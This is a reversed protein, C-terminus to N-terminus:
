EIDIPEFEIGGCDVAEGSMIGHVYTEGVFSRSLHRGAQGDGGEAVPTAPPLERLIFPTRGGAFIWIEDDQQATRPGLGLYGKRTRFLTRGYGECLYRQVQSFFKSRELEEAAMEGDGGDDDDFSEVENMSPLCDSGGEEALLRRLAEAARAYNAEDEDGKINQMYTCVITRFAYEASWSPENELDDAILTRWLVEGGGCDYIRRHIPALDAIMRMWEHMPYDFIDVGKSDPSPGEVVEAITDFLHGSPRLIRPSSAPWLECASRAGSATFRHSFLRDSTLEIHFNPVWSPTGHIRQPHSVAEKDSMATELSPNQVYSLGELPELTGTELSKTDHIENRGRAEVFLRGARLFVDAIPLTYDAAPMEELDEYDASYDAAIGLLAFITDRSDTVGFSWTLAILSSLSPPPPHKHSACEGVDRTSSRIWHRLNMLRYIHGDTAKRENDTEMEGFQRLIGGIEFPGCYMEYGRALCLEQAVWKRSFWSRRCVASFYGQLEEDTIDSPHTRKQLYRKILATSEDQLGLWIVVKSAAAYIRSMMAVQANREEADGQNICIGDVWFDLRMHQRKNVKEGLARIKGLYASPDRLVRATEEWDRRERQLCNDIPKRGANDIANIDAGHAILTMVVNTRGNEAAYHLATEGFQDTLHIDAGQELCQIVEKMRNTESASILRTKRFGDIRRDVDLSVAHKTSYFQSLADHLNRRIFLLRGNVSIPCRHITSYEDASPPTNPDYPNGWTYSLAKYRPSDALDVTRLTCELIPKGFITPKPHHQQHASLLRISTPTPLPEYKYLDFNFDAPPASM